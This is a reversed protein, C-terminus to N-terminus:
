VKANRKDLIKWLIYVLIIFILPFINVLKFSNFNIEALEVKRTIIFTLWPTVTLVAFFWSLLFDFLKVRKTFYMYLTGLLIIPFLVFLGDNQTWIAFALNMGSLYFFSKGKGIYSYYLSIISVFFFISFLLDSYTTYQEFIFYLLTVISLIYTSSLRLVRTINQSQLVYFLAILIFYYFINAFSIFFFNFEGILKAIWIKFLADNLPYNTVSGSGDTVLRQEQFVVEIKQEHDSIIDSRMVGVVSAIVLSFFLIIVSIKEYRNFAALHFFLRQLFPKINKLQPYLLKKELIFIFFELGIIQGLASIYFIWVNLPMGSLVNAAFVDLTFASMGFIWGLFFKFGYSFSKSRDIVYVLLYGRPWVLTVAFLITFYFNLQDTM